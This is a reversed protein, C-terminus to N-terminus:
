EAKIEALTDAVTNLLAKVKVERQTDGITEAEM